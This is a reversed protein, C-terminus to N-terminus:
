KAPSSQSTILGAWYDANKIGLKDPDFVPDIGLRMQAEYDRLAILAPKALFILCLMNVWALSAYGVDGIAWVMDASEVAGYFVMGLMAVRLAHALAPNRAGGTLYTLSTDAIYYFAVLTTFAFLALAIAVFYPGAGSFVSDFAEQTYAPGAEVGPVHTVIKEGAETTVNYNGTVLIMFGTAMCIFLTDIYISFAQVLGQKAPHSVEAAASGYTGEGVGAVNSFLARRVGWAIAAGVIGGFVSDSGFASGMVLSFVAPVETINVALVLLAALIYGVAMVPVVTDAVAVIRKRRGFVIFGLLAVVVSGTVWPSIGMASDFSASIANSQVGPALFAYLSMATVAAIVALWKKRLGKEIYYPIGGWFTGDAKSKYIQALTSEVFATAGGLFAMVAMWFLAGPGGAAIATAVGAINGVGIRSSLTLMLAQFSSVGAESREGRRLLRVMDPIRRVQVARTVVTLVLGFSLAFWVLPDWLWDNLSVLFDM